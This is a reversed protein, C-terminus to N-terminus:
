TARPRVNTGSATFAPLDAVEAPHNLCPTRAKEKRRGERHAHAAFGAAKRIPRVRDASM